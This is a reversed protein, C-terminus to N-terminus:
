RYITRFKSFAEKWGKSEVRNNQNIAKTVTTSDLGLRERCLALLGMGADAIDPSM